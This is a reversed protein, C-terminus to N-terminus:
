WTQINEPMVPRCRGPDMVGCIHGSSRPHLLIASSGIKSHSTAISIAFVALFHVCLISIICRDRLSSLRYDGRLISTTQAILHTIRPHKRLSAQTNEHSQSVVINECHLIQVMGNCSSLYVSKLTSGIVLWVETEYRRSIQQSPPSNM